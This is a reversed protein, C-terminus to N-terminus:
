NSLRFSVSGKDCDLSASDVDGVVVKDLLKQALVETLRCTVAVVSLAAGLRAM